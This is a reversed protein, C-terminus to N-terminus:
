GGERGGLGILRQRPKKTRALASSVCQDPCCLSVHLRGRDNGIYPHYSWASIGRSDITRGVVGNGFM